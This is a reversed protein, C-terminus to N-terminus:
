NNKEAKGLHIEFTRGDRSFRVRDPLIEEVVAGNIASGTTLPQGNIIALRDASDKNWAIGSVSFAPEASAAPAAAAQNRAPPPLVAPPAATAPLSPWSEPPASPTQQLKPLPVPVPAAPQSTASGAAPAPAPLRQMTLAPMSKVIQPVAQGSAPPPATEAQQPVQQPAPQPTVQPQQLPATGRTMLAIVMVSLLVMVSIAAAWQWPFRERRRMADHLIERSLDIEGERRLAKERELKKLANLISSMIEGGRTRLTSAM